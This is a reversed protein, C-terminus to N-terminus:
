IPTHQKLSCCSEKLNQTWLRPSSLLALLVSEGATQKETQRLKEVIKGSEGKGIPKNQGDEIEWDHIHKAGTNPECAM